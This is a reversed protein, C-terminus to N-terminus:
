TKRKLWSGFWDAFAGSVVMVTVIWMDLRVGWLRNFLLSIGFLLLWTAGYILLNVALWRVTKMTDGLLREGQPRVALSM